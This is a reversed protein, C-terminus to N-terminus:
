SQVQILQQVMDVLQRAEMRTAAEQRTDVETLTTEELEVGVELPLLVAGVEQPLLEVGLDEVVAGKHGPVAVVEVEGSNDEVTKTDEAM